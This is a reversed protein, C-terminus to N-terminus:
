GCFHSVVSGAEQYFKKFGEKGGVRVRSTEEIDLIRVARGRNILITRNWTDTACIGAFFIISSSSRLIYRHVGCSCWMLM